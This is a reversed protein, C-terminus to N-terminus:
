AFGQGVRVLVWNNDGQRQYEAERLPLFLWYRWDHNPDKKAMNEFTQLTKADKWELDYPAQYIQKGDKKIVADGFGAIIKTDMLAKGETYGCNLCGAIRGKLPKLRKFM